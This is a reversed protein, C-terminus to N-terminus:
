KAVVPARKARQKGNRAPTAGVKSRAAALADSLKLDTGKSAAGAAVEVLALTVADTAASRKGARSSALYAAALARRGDFKARLDDPTRGAHAAALDDVAAMLDIWNGHQAERIMVDDADTGLTLAADDASEVVSGDPGIYNGEADTAPVISPLVEALQDRLKLVRGVYHDLAYGELPAPTSALTDLRSLLNRVKSRTLTTSDTAM